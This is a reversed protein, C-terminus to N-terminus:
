LNGERDLRHIIKDMQVHRRYNVSKDGKESCKRCVYLVRRGTNRAEMEYVPYEEGCVNCKM